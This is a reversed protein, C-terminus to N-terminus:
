KAVCQGEVCQASIVHKCKYMCKACSKKNYNETADIVDQEHVSNIAIGCGFPCGLYVLKCDTDTSCAVSDSILSYIQDREAKQDNHSLCQDAAVNLSATLLMILVFIRM